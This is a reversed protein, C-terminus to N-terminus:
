NKKSAMDGGIFKMLAANFEVSKELQPVHGCKEIVLLESGNIEKKFREGMALPTLLDERGWIILTPQKIASLRKDLVDEGNVISDIFRQITYGDGAMMRRTLMLGAAADSGFMQKNYFIQALLQKSGELTSPSLGNLARPNVDGTLAFGAADVLVLREVKDPHALAYAAATWGGLSNGVLTAREIKLEKYLADLFDVLTGVRYNIMPKDSRGFGIQDPVIVRYKESLPGITAFWNSVDGGLGHLLIVAPGSGAELYHIKAGYITAFKDTAGPPAQAMMAPQPSAAKGQAAMSDKTQPRAAVSVALSCIIAVLTLVVPNRRPLNQM